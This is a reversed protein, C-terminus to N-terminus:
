GDQRKPRYEEPQTEPLLGYVVALGILGIAALGFFGAAYGFSQAAYGSVLTSVAAGIGTATGIAGQALNYRGSGRMIDAVVLPVLIGIVAATLGDLAQVAVLYWVGPAIGFLGARIPVLAFAALLLPKRGWDNARRAIWAAILATVIQPVVVLASTLLTSDPLHARGLQGAALPMLSSNVLQFLSLAVALVLLDRNRALVRLQAVERPKKRDRALRAAAYDIEEPRIRALAWGAPLCLAGAALFISQTGIYQGVVGMLVATLANGLSDFRQNRGLRGSLARHGVLGLGIAVIAPRIVGSTTGHLTEATFVAIPNASLAFIAAGGAIVALGIAILLRKSPAWDVIAGGPIEAAIGAVGGVTLLLGIEGQPWGQSALYLAVFPGFGTQVDAILFNLWDLARQSARSPAADSSTSKRTAHHPNATM